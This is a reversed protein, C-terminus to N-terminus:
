LGRVILKGVYRDDAARQVLLTAAIDTWRRRDADSGNEGVTLCGASYTGVHLYRNLVDTDNIFFWTLAYSTLHLYNAGDPHPYDAQSLLYQGNPLQNSSDFGAAVVVNGPNVTLRKTRYDFELVAGVNFAVDVFRSRSDVLATVDAQVGKNPSDLITFKERRGAGTGTFSIDKARCYKSVPIIVSDSLRKVSLWNDNGVETLAKAVTPARFSPKLVDRNFVKKVLNSNM